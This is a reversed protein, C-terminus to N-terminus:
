HNQNSSPRLSSDLTPPVVAENRIGLVTTENLKNNGITDDLKEKTIQSMSRNDVAVALVHPRIAGALRRYDTLQTAQNRM